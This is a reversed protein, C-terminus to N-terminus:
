PAVGWLSYIMSPSGSEAFWIGLNRAAKAHLELSPSQRYIQAPKTLNSKVGQPTVQLIGRSAGFSLAERTYPLLSRARRAFGVTVIRNNLLWNNLNANVTKPLARRTDGHLVIPLCLFALALPMPEGSKGEYALACSTLVGSCFAPNLLYKVERPRHDWPTM